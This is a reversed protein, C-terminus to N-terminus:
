QLLAKPSIVTKNYYHKLSLHCTRNFISCQYVNELPRAKLLFYEDNCLDHIMKKRETENILLITEVKPPPANVYRTLVSLGAIYVAFLNKRSYTALYDVFSDRHITLADASNEM